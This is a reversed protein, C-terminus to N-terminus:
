KRARIMDIVQQRVMNNQDGQFSPPNEAIIVQLMLILTEREAAVANRVMEDISLM